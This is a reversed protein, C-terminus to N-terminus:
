NEDDPGFDLHRPPRESPQISPATHVSLDLFREQHGKTDAARPAPTKSRGHRPRPAREVAEARHRIADVTFLGGLAVFTNDYVESVRAFTSPDCATGPPGHGMYDQYRRFRPPATGAKSARIELSASAAADSRSILRPQRRSRLERQWLIWIWGPATDTRRCYLGATFGSEFDLRLLVVISVREPQRAPAAYGDRDSM